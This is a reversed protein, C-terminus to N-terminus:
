QCVGAPGSLTVNGTFACKTTTGNGTLAVVQPSTSANDTITISGTRTGSISPTFTINIACSLGAGLTSGCTNGQAFDGSAVISTINLTGTGTNTMTVGRSASTTGVFQDGFNVSSVSLTVAPATSTGTGSLAVIQPSGSANDFITLNASRAGAATPAFTVNITCTLGSLLLSPCNNNQSFDGPNPGSAITISSITVTGGPGSTNTVAVSQSGSPTGVTQAAFIRSSPLATLTLAAPVTAQVENSKGSEGSPQWAGGGTGTGSTASAFTFTTATPQATVTFTGNFSSNGGIIAVVGAPFVCISTCTVTATSGNGTISSVVGGNFATVTYFYTGNAPTDTTSLGTIGSKVLSYPGGHVTGRYLSYGSVPGTSANWSFSVTSGAV